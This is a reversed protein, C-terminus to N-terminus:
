GAARPSQTWVWKRAGPALGLSEYTANAAQSRGDSAVLAVTASLDSGRRLTELVLARALGRRRHDPVCGVPELLLTRNASDFWGTCHAALGGDPAIALLDLESRYTPSSALARWGEATFSPAAATRDILSAVEAWADAETVSRLAYGAPLPANEVRRRLSRTRYWHHFADTRRYGRRALEVEHPGDCDLAATSIARDTADRGRLAEEAWDMMPRLLSSAGVCVTVDIFGESAWAFGIAEGTSDLWLRCTKELPPADRQHRWFDLDGVTMSVRPGTAAWARQLLRRMRHYDAEGRFATSPATM